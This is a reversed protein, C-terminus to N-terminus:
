GTNVKADTMHKSLYKLSSLLGSAVITWHQTDFVSVAADRLVAVNGTVTDLVRLCCDIAARDVGPNKVLGAGIRDCLLSHMDVWLRCESALASVAAPLDGATVAAAIAKSWQDHALDCKATFNAALSGDFILLSRVLSAHALTALLTLCHIAQPVAPSACLQLAARLHYGCAEEADNVANSWFDISTLAKTSVKRQSERTVDGAKLGSRGIVAVSFWSSLLTLLQPTIDSGSKVVLLMDWCRSLVAHHVHYLLVHVDCVMRQCEVDCTYGSSYSVLSGDTASGHKPLATLCAILGDADKTCTLLLEGLAEADHAVAEM